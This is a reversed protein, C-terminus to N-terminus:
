NYTKAKIENTLDKVLTDKKPDLFFQVAETYTDGIIIPGTNRIWTYSGQKEFVCRADLAQKLLFRAEFEFKGKADKLLNFLETIKSIDSDQTTSSKDILEHLTNNIVDTSVVTNSPAKGLIACLKHKASDTM